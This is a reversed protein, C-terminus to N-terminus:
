MSKLVRLLEEKVIECFNGRTRRKRNRQGKPARNQNKKWTPTREAVIAKRFASKLNGVLKAISNKALHKDDEEILFSWEENRLNSHRILFVNADLTDKLIKNCAQPWTM